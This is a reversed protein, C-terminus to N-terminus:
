EQKKCLVVKSHCKTKFVIYDKYDLNFDDPIYVNAHIEWQGGYKARMQCYIKEIHQNSDIEEKALTDIIVKLHTIMEVPMNTRMIEFQNQFM